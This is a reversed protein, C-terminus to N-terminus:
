ENEYIDVYDYPNTLTDSNIDKKTYLHYIFIFNLIFICLPFLIKMDKGGNGIVSFRIIFGIVGALFLIIYEILDNNEM